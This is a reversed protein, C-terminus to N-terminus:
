SHGGAHTLALAVGALRDRLPAPDVDLSVLSELQCCGLLLLYTAKVGVLDAGADLLRVAQERHWAALLEALDPHRAGALHLEALLRRTRAFEPALFRDVAAAADVPGDGRDVEHLAQRGAEVMLEARGRFHNYIAAPTVGALEAVAGM